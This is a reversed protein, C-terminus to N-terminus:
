DGMETDLVCCAAAAIREKKTFRYGFEKEYRKAASLIFNTYSGCAKVSSYDPKSIHKEHNKRCCKYLEYLDACNTAYLYLENAAVKDACIMESLVESYKEMTVVGKLKSPTQEGEM